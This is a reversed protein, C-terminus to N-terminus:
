QWRHAIACSHDCLQHVYVGVCLTCKRDISCMSARADGLMCSMGVIIDIAYLNVVPIFALWIPFTLAVVIIATFLLNWRLYRNAPKKPPVEAATEASRDSESSPIEMIFSLTKKRNTKDLVVPEDRIDIAAEAFTISRPSSPVSITSQLSPQMDLVPKIPPEDM